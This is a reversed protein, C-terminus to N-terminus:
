ENLELMLQDICDILEDMWKKYVNGHLTIIQKFKNRDNNALASVLENVIVNCTFKDQNEPLLQKKIKNELVDKLYAKIEDDTIKSIIDQISKPESEGSTSSVYILNKIDQFEQSLNKHAKVVQDWYNEDFNKEILGEIDVRLPQCRNVIQHKYLSVLVGPTESRNVLADFFNDFYVTIKNNSKIAKDVERDPVLVTSWFSIKFNYEKQCVKKIWYRLNETWEFYKTKDEGGWHIAFIIEANNLNEQTIFKNILELFCTVIKCNENIDANTNPKEKLKTLDIKGSALSNGNILFLKKDSNHIIRKYKVQSGDKCEESLDIAKASNKKNYEEWDGNILKTTLIIVRM